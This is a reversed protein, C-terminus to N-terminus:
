SDPKPQPTSACTLWRGVAIAPKEIGAYTLASLVLAGPVWFTAPLLGMVIPHMLYLSYSCAGVWVLARPTLSYRMALWFIALGAMRAWAYAPEGLLTRPALAFVLVCLVAIAPRKERLAGGCYILSLYGLWPFVSLPLLVDAALQGIAFLPAMSAAPARFLTVVVYFLLEIALTWAGPNIDPVGVMGQLMTANVLM